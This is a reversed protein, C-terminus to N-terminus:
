VESDSKTKIRKDCELQKWREEGICERAAPCYDVCSPMKEKYVWAGCRYCKAKLEHSFIEVEAKCNPCTFVDVTINRRDQGPCLSM